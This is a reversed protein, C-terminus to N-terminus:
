MYVTVACDLLSDDFSSEVDQLHESLYLLPFYLVCFHLEFEIALVKPCYIGPCM